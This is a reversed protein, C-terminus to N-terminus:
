DAKPPSDDDQDKAVQTAHRARERQTADEDYEYTMGTVRERGERRDGDAMVHIEVVHTVVTRKYVELEGGAFDWVVSYSGQVGHMIKGDMKGGVFKCPIRSM